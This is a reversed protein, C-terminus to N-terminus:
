QLCILVRKNSGDEYTVNLEFCVAEWLVIARYMRESSFLGIDFRSGMILCRMNLNPTM